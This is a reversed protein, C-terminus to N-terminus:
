KKSKSRKSKGAKSMASVKNCLGIFDDHTMDSKMKNVRICVFQINNKIYGKNSDIRDLSPLNNETFEEGTYVCMNNQMKIQLQLDILNLDFIRNRSKAHSRADVLLFKLPDKKRKNVQWEAACLSCQVNNSSHLRWKKHEGHKKCDIALGANFRDVKKKVHSTKKGKNHPTSGSKFVGANFTKREYVGTPM